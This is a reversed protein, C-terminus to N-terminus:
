IKDFTGHFRPFEGSELFNGMKHTSFYEVEGSQLDDTGLFTYIVCNRTQFGELVTIIEFPYHFFFREALVKHELSHHM